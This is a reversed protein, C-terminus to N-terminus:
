HTAPGASFECDAGEGDQQQIEGPNITCNLHSLGEYITGAAGDTPVGAEVITAYLEHAKRGNITILKKGFTLECSHSAINVNSEKCVMSDAQVSIKKNAAFQFQLNGNLLDSMVIKEASSLVPSNEAVIAALALSNEHDGAALAHQELLLLSLLAVVIQRM